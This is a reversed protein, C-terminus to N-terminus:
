ITVFCATGVNLTSQLVVTSSESPMMTKLISGCTGLMDIKGEELLRNILGNAKEITCIAVDLSSFGGTASQTGM